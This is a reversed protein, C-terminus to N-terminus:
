PFGQHPAFLGCVGIRVILARRPVQVEDFKLRSQLVSGHALIRTRDHQEFLPASMLDELMGQQKAATQIQRQKWCM